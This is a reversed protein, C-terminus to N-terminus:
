HLYARNLVAEMVGVQSQANGVQLNAVLARGNLDVGRLDQNVQLPPPQKFAVEFKGFDAQNLRLDPQTRGNSHLDVFVVELCFASGQHNVLLQQIFGANIIQFNYIANYIDFCRTRALWCLLNFKCSKIAVEGVYSQVM